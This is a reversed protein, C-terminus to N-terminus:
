IKKNALMSYNEQEGIIIHDVLKIDVINSVEIIKKTLISDRKSPTCDGSPHNHVLIIKNCNMLIARKLIERGTFFTESLNGRSVESFGVICNKCNIGILIVVEEPEQQIKIIKRVFDVTDGSCSLKQDFEFSNEKVMILKNKVVEM